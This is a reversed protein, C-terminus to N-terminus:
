RNIENQAKSLSNLFSDVSKNVDDKTTGWSSVSIRIVKRGAWQSGGVWCIRSDQINKLTKVTLEDNECSVVVQNFVVENLVTFGEITSLSDRFQVARNHMNSVMQSIGSKGLYKMTAWLEIVRARRSMEPTYFMSDRKDSEAIYGGSMHLASKLAERDACILIGCDYPTNLTKHGDVSLSDAMEIGKTLYELDKSAAAWLGFAGDIHVWAGAARAKTCITQFDDFSGSNVNGAQLIVISKEDLEPILDSRIRGQDDTDIWEINDTGFGLLSIAKLVTSHAQNGTIIRLDPARNLGKKNIDWDQKLLLSYRAAALGCFTAMSSGSLFGCVCSDKFQFIEKIWQEVLNELTATVPSMAYMASNQDWYTAMNKAALGAPVASGCVFGFYRGGTQAVTAPSGLRHLTEIIKEPDCSKEPFSEDFEKLSKIAEDSPFINRELSTEVYAMSYKHAQSFIKKSALESFMADQLPYNEKM